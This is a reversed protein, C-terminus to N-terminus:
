MRPRGHTGREGHSCLLGGAHNPDRAYQRSSLRAVCAAVWVFSPSSLLRVPRDGLKAALAHAPALMHASGNPALSNARRCERSPTTTSLDAGRHAEPSLCPM